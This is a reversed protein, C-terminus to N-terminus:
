RKIRALAKEAAQRIYTEEPNTRTNHLHRYIRVALRRNGRTLLREALLLCSQTAKIREYPAETDSAELLLPVADPDPINALAWVAALRIERDSDHLARRFAPISRRDRLVGLNQLITLRCSPPAKPLAQRLQYVADQGIAVLARAAWDCLDPDTLTHGLAATVEPGGCTQLQEIIFQQVPKPRDTGLQSALTEAFLRRHQPPKTCLYTALAGLAYRAKTDDLTGPQGIMDILQLYAAPAQACLADLIKEVANEDINTLMGYENPEPLRSVLTRITPNAAM